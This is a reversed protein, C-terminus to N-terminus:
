VRYGIYIYIYMCIYKNYIQVGFGAGPLSSLLGPSGMISGTVVSPLWYQACTELTSQNDLTSLDLTSQHWAVKFLSNLSGHRLAPGGLWWSSLTSESWFTTLLSSERRRLDVRREGWCRDTKGGLMSADKRSFLPACLFRGPIAKKLVQGRFNKRLLPSLHCNQCLFRWSKIYTFFWKSLFIM